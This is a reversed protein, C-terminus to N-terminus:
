SRFCCLFDGKQSISIRREKKDGTKTPFVKRVLSQNVFKSVMRCAVELADENIFDLDISPVSGSQHDWAFGFNGETGVKPGSTRQQISQWQKIHQQGQLTDRKKLSGRGGMFGVVGGFEDTEGPIAGPKGDEFNEDLAMTSGPMSSPNSHGLTSVATSATPSLKTLAAMFGGVTGGMGSVSSSYNPDQLNTATAASNSSNLSAIHASVPLMYFGTLDDEKNKESLVQMMDQLVTNKFMFPESGEKWGKYEALLEGNGSAANKSWVNQAQRSMLGAGAAAMTAVVGAGGSNNGNNVSKSRGVTEERDLLMSSVGSTKRKTEKRETIGGGGGSVSAEYLFRDRVGDELWEWFEKSIGLEGEKTGDLAPGLSSLCAGHVSYDMRSKSIGMIQRSVTGATLAVHIGLTIQQHGSIGSNNSSNSSANNSHSSSPNSSNTPTNVSTTINTPSNSSSIPPFNSTNNTTYTDTITNNPDITSTRGNAKTQKRELSM